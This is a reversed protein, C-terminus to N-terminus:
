KKLRYYGGSGIATTFVHNEGQVTVDGAETWDPTSLSATTELVFSPDSCTWSIVIDSGNRVIILSPSPASIPTGIRVYDFEARGDPSTITAYRDDNNAQRQYEVAGYDFGDVHILWKKNVTDVEWRVTHFKDSLGTINTLVTGNWFKLQQLGDDGLQMSMFGQALGGSVPDHDMNIWVMAGAWESNVDAVPEPCRMKVECVFPYNFDDKPYSDIVPSWGNDPTAILLGNTIGTAPDFPDPSGSRWKWDGQATPDEGNVDFELDWKVNITPAPRGIRVYDFEARGDPSTITAYRDDNNAQRVYAVTGCYAGDVFINWEKNRPDVEWRVTHFDSSLGTINTVVAGNWFKLQQLGDNGLQMSMFAQALNGSVPDCDMNIWVMAGAWESNVDAVPEPCRMRAECIFPFNFDSKPYTDIVPSWGNLPNAILLGNTIGTAPNFPAPNGSRWKWDGQATPDEGPTNFELAWMLDIGGPNPALTQGQAVNSLGSLNGAPDISRVAFYYTAGFTLGTVKFAESTGSGAPMPFFFATGDAPTASSWNDLTIPQTSYRIDYRAVPNTTGPDAPPTWKLFLYSLSRRSNDVSLNNVANPATTDAETLIGLFRGSIPAAGLTPAPEGEKIWTVALTDPSQNESMLAEFYYPIGAELSIPVSALNMDYARPVSGAASAIMALTSRDAPDQALWFEGLQNAAVYFIYNATEEPVLYGSLRQGVSTGGSNGGVYKWPQIELASLYHTEDPWFPYKPDARLADLSAYTGLYVELKVLNTSFVQAAQSFTLTVPDPYQPYGALDTEGSVTLTYPGGDAPIGDTEVVVVNPHGPLLSVQNVIGPIRSIEYIGILAVPKSWRVYLNTTDGYTNCSLLAVGELVHIVGPESTASSTSNSVQCTYLDGENLLSVPATTYAPGNAGAIAVDNSYWGYYTPPGTATATFTATFTELVNTTAPAVTVTVAAQSSTLLGALLLGMSVRSPFLLHSKIKM